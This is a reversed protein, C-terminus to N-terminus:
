FIVSAEKQVKDVANMYHDLDLGNVVKYESFQDDSEVIESYEFQGDYDM